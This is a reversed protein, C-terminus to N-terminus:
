IINLDISSLQRETADPIYVPNRDDRHERDSM